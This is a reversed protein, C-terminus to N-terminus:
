LITVTTRQCLIQPSPLTYGTYLPFGQKAKAESGVGTTPCGGGGLGERLSLSTCARVGVDGRFRILPGAGEGGWDGGAVRVSAVAFIFFDAEPFLLDRGLISGM